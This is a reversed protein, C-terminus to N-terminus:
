YIDVRVTKIFSM